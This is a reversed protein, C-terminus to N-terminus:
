WTCASLLSALEADKRGKNFLKHWQGCIFIVHPLYQKCRTWNEWMPKGDIERPFLSNMLSLIQNFNSIREDRTMDISAMTQVLRHVGVNNDTQSVLGSRCLGTLAEYLSISVILISIFDM